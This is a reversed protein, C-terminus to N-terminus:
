RHLRGIEEDHPEVAVAGGGPAVVAGAPGAARRRLQQAAAADDLPPLHAAPNMAVQQAPAAPPPPPLAFQFIADLLQSFFKGVYLTAYGVRFPGTPLPLQYLPTKEAQWIRGGPGHRGTGDGGVGGGGGGGGNRGAGNAGYSTGQSLLYGSYQSVFFSIVEMLIIVALFILGFYFPSASAVCTQTAPDVESFFYQDCRPPKCFNKAPVFSQGGTCQVAATCYQRNEQYYATDTPSLKNALGMAFTEFDAAFYLSQLTLAGFVILPAPYSYPHGIEAGKLVCIRKKLDVSVGNINEQLVIYPAGAEKDISGVSVLLTSLPIFLEESMHGDNGVLKFSFAPLLEPAMIVTNNDLWATFHDYLEAPLTLCSSGTDVLVPYTRSINALMNIGCFSLDNLM